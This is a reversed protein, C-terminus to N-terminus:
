VTAIGIRDNLNDASVVPLQQNLKLTKCYSYTIPRKVTQIFRTSIKYLTNKISYFKIALLMVQLSTDSKDTVTQNQSYVNYGINNNGRSNHFIVRLLTLL